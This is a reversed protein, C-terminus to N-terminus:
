DQCLQNLFIWKPMQDAAAKGREYKNTEEPTGTQPGGRNWLGLNSGQTFMMEGREAHSGLKPDYEKGTVREYGL